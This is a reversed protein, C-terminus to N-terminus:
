EEIKPKVKPVLKVKGDTVTKANVLKETKVGLKPSDTKVVETM